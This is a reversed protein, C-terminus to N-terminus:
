SPCFTQSAAAENKVAGLQSEGSFSLIKKPIALNEKSLSIKFIIDYGFFKLSNLNIEQVM